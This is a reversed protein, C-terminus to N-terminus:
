PVPRRLLERVLEDIEAAIGVATLEARILQRARVFATAGVVVTAAIEEARTAASVLRRHVDVGPDFDPIPLSLMVKDFDRAGWQGRSQLNAVAVRATESNLVAELYRAEHESAVAAWYLKHEVIASADRLVAAAPLTGSAAYIVRLPHGTMQVALAGHYDIREVLTMNARSYREWLGEAETLWASVRPFGARAAAHADLVTNSNEDWPIVATVPALLRYPALSPGMYLRHLFRAEVARRLSPLTRWPRKELGSRRSEVLPAERNGGLTGAAVPQVLWFVQPFVTTGARFRARYPSGDATTDPQVVPEENITLFQEAVERSADRRPLNGAFAQAVGPLARPETTERAFVVAAPVPFLPQVRDDLTWPQDFAVRAIPPPPRRATSNRLRYNGSRFGEFQRRSLAALPMVFAIRAGARLYLEVARVFFLASLDQHTAHRGGTWLGRQECQTRFRGQFEDTMFRYSLWPPNGVVVDARQDESSLWIPRSLNRAVYGWIHDRDDKHLQRLQRYTQSLAEVDQAVGIGERVLWAELAAPDGQQESLSLMQDIVRDFVGPDRTVAFPFLLTEGGDPVDILVEREALFSQTNWQLADGLYVPVTVDGRDGRLRDTGIALLYTVRAVLVAVPHIDIGLVRDTTLALAERNDLGAADAAALLRRVAFFLFTGSGCAPDLVRQETPREIARECILDALWDPTYFEGLDRRQDPDILSEYLVKLVDHQVQRLRFRGVQRAIRMVLDAGGPAELVWDFLDSEVAGHIAVDSFARGGLLQAADTPVAGVVESAMTKAVVTLYTHQYWLDDADVSSGYVRQLFDSWLQRKLTVSPDARSASWLESLLGSARRYAVSDRGLERRITTPTPELEPVVVLVSDLWRLLAGPHEPNTERRDLEILVGHRLEFTVFTAGDTAIGAYREGTSAERETLYRALGERADGMEVRLDRKLEVVTRGLLADARGRVEGRNLHVEFRVDESRAGLGDVLMSYLLTRVKEHGPRSALEAAIEFQRERDLAMPAMTDAPDPRRM